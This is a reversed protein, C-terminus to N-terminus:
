NKLDEAKVCVLIADNICVLLDGMSPMAWSALEDFGLEMAEEQSIIRVRQRESLRKLVSATRSTTVDLLHNIVQYCYGKGIRIEMREFQKLNIVTQAM